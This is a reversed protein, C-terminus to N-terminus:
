LTDTTIPERDMALERAYWLLHYAADRVPKDTLSDFLVGMSDCERPWPVHDWIRQIEADELQVITGTGSPHQFGQLKSKPTEHFVEVMTCLSEMAERIEVGAQKALERYAAVKEISLPQAFSGGHRVQPAVM